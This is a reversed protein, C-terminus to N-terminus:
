PLVRPVQPSALRKMTLKLLIKTRGYAWRITGRSVM